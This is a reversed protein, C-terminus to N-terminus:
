YDTYDKLQTDSAVTFIKNKADTQKMDVTSEIYSNFRIMTKLASLFKLQEKKNKDLDSPNIGKFFGNKDEQFLNIRVFDNTFQLSPDKCLLQVFICLKESAKM